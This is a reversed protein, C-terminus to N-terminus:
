PAVTYQSQTLQFPNDIANKVSELILAKDQATLIIDEDRDASAYRLEKSIKDLSITNAEKGTLVYYWVYAAMFRGYDSLHSYDRNLQPDGLYSSRANQVATGVPFIFEFFDNTAIKTEVADCIANYMTMQDNNYYTKFSSTTNVTTINDTDIDEVPYAWTMNWAFIADPNSCNAKVYDIITQMDENYTDARGSASSAQQLVFIDWDQAQICDQLTAGNAGTDNWSGTADTWYYNYSKSDETLYKVHTALSCGGYYAVGLTIDSLGEAMAIEYLYRTSDLSFSNGITLIKLPRNAFIQKYAEKVSAVDWSSMVSRFTEYMDLVETTQVETLDSWDESAAELANKLSMSDNKGLIVTNNALQVYPVGIIQMNGNVTNMSKGNTTLMINEVISSTVGTTNDGCVWTDATFGTRTKFQTDALISEATPASAISFAVGYRSIQAKVKEDGGFQSDFYIGTTSPRLIASTLEMSIRHFSLQGDENIMLYNEAPQIYDANAVTGFGEGDEVTYDDTNSDKVYLTGATHTIQATISHGALDVHLDAELTFPASVDAHLVIVADDGPYATLADAFSAYYETGIQAAANSADAAAAVLYMGTLLLALVLIINVIRKM